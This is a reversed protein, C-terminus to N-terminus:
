EECPLYDKERLSLAGSAEASQASHKTTTTRQAPSSPPLASTSFQHRGARPARAAATSPAHSRSLEQQPRTEYTRSSYAATPPHRSASTSRLRDNNAALSRRRLNIDIRSPQLETAAPATAAHRDTNSIEQNLHRSERRDALPRAHWSTKRCKCGHSSLNKRAHMKGLGFRKQLNSVFLIAHQQECFLLPRNLHHAFQIATLRLIRGTSCWKNM